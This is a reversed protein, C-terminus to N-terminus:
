CAELRRGSSRRHLGKTELRGLDRRIPRRFPKMNVHVTNLKGEPRPIASRDYDLRYETGRRSEREMRRSTLHLPREAVEGGSLVQM